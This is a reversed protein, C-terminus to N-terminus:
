DPILGEGSFDAAAEKLTTDSPPLIVDSGELEDDGIQEGAARVRDLLAVFSSRYAEEDCADVATIVATELENLGDKEADALRWQGEGSIRVIM